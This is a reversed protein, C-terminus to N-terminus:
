PEYKPLGAGESARTRFTASWRSHPDENDPPTSIVSNAGDSGDEDIEADGGPVVVAVSRDSANLADVEPAHARLLATHLALPERITGQMAPEDEDEDWAPPASPVGIGDGVDQPPASPVLGPFESPPASPTRIRGDVTLNNGSMGPAIGNTATAM